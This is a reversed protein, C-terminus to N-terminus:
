EVLAQLSIYEDRKFLDFAVCIERKNEDNKIISPNFDRSCRCLKADVWKCKEPLDIKIVHDVGIIDSNGSCVFTGSIFILNNKIPQKSKLIELSDFYGVLNNYLNFSETPIYVIRCPRRKKKIMYPLLGIIITVVVGIIGWAM